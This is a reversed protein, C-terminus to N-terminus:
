STDGSPWRKRISLALSDASAAGVCILTTSFQNSSNFRRTGVPVFHVPENSPNTEFKGSLNGKGQNHKAHSLVGPYVRSFLLSWFPRGFCRIYRVFSFPPATCSCSDLGAPAFRSLHDSSGHVFPTCTSWMSSM